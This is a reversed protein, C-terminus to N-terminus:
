VRTLSAFAKGIDGMGFIGVTAGYVDSLLYPGWSKWKGEQIYSTAEIIRRAVTLM